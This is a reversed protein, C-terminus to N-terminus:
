GKVGARARARVGILMNEFGSKCILWRRAPDAVGQHCSFPSETIMTLTYFRNAFGVFDSNPKM